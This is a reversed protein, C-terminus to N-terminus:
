ILLENDALVNERIHRDYEILAIKLSDIQGRYMQAEHNQRELAAELNKIRVEYKEKSFADVKIDTLREEQQKFKEVMQKVIRKYVAQELLVADLEARHKLKLNDVLEQLEQRSM